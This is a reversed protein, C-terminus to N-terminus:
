DYKKIYKKILTVCSLSHDTFCYPLRYYYLFYVVPQDANKENNQFINM